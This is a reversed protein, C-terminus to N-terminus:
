VAKKFCTKPSTLSLGTHIAEDITKRFCHSMWQNLILYKSCKEVKIETQSLM